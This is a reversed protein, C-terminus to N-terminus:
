MEYKDEYLVENYTFDDVPLLNPAIDYSFDFQQPFIFTALILNIFIFIKYM